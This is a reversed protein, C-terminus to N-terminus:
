LLLFLLPVACGVQWFLSQLMRRGLRNCVGPTLHIVNISVFPLNNPPIHCEKVCLGAAPSTVINRVLVSMEACGANDRCYPLAYCCALISSHWGRISICRGSNLCLSLLLYSFSRSGSDVACLGLQFVWVEETLWSIGQMKHFRINM